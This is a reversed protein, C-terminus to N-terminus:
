LMATTSFTAPVSDPNIATSPLMLIQGVIRPKFMFQTAMFQLVQSRSRNTNGTERVMFRM